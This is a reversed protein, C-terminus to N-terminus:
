EQGDLLLSTTLRNPSSSSSQIVFEKVHENTRHNMAERRFVSRRIRWETRSTLKGPWLGYLQVTPDIRFRLILLLRVLSLSAVISCLIGIHKYLPM